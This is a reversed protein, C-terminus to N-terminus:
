RRWLVRRRETIETTFIRPNAKHAHWAIQESFRIALLHNKGALFHAISYVIAKGILLFHM